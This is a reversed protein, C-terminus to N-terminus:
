IFSRVFDIYERQERESKFKDNMIMDKEIELPIFLKMCVGRKSFPSVVVESKLIESYGVDNRLDECPKFDFNADKTINGNQLINATMTNENLEWKSAIIVNSANVYYLFTLYLAHAEEFPYFSGKATIVGNKTVKVVYNTSQALENFSDKMFGVVVLNAQLQKKDCIDVFTLQDGEESIWWSKIKSKKLRYYM